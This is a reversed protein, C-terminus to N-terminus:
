DTNGRPARVSSLAPRDSQSIQQTTNQGCPLDLPQPSVALQKLYSSSGVFRMVLVHHSVNFFAAEFYRLQHSAICNSSSHYV